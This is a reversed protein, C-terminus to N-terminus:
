VCVSRLRMFAVNDLGALVLYFDLREGPGDVGFGDPDRAQAVSTQM